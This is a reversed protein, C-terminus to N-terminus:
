YYIRMLLPMIVFWILPSLVFIITLGSFMYKIYQSRNDGNRLEWLSLTVLYLGLLVLSLVLFIPFLTIFTGM